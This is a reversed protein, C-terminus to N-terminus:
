SADRSTPRFQIVRATREGQDAVERLPPPTNRLLVGTLESQAQLHRTIQEVEARLEAVEATLARFQGTDIAAM